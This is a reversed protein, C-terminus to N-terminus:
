AVQKSPKGPGCGFIETLVDIQEEPTQPPELARRDEPAVFDLPTVPESGRARFANAITAAVVGANL